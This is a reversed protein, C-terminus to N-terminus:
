YKVHLDAIIRTSFFRYYKNISKFSQIAVATTNFSSNSNSILLYNLATNYITVFNNIILNKVTKENWFYLYLKVFTTIEPKFSNLFFSIM